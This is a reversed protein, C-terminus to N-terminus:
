IFLKYILINVIDILIYKMVSQFDFHKLITRYLNNNQNRVM